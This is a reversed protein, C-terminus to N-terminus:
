QKEVRKVTLAYRNENEFFVPQIEYDSDKQAVLDFVVRIKADAGKHIGVRIQQIVKGNAAILRGIGAALHAGFFDCIVRPKGEDIAFTKPPYFGNLQFVVTEGGGPTKKFHIERLEKYTTIYPVRAKTKGSFLIANAWGVQDERLRVVYWDDKKDLIKLQEGKKVKAIVPSMLTPGSRINGVRVKVSATRGVYDTATEGAACKPVGSIVLSLFSIFIIVDSYKRKM